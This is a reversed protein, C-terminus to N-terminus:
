SLMIVYMRYDLVQRVYFGDFSYLLIWIISPLLYYRNFSTFDKYALSILLNCLRVDPGVMPQVFLELSQM